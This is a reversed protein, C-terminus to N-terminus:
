HEKPHTLSVRAWQAEHGDITLDISGTDEVRLQAGDPHPVFRIWDLGHHALTREAPHLLPFSRRNVDSFWVASCGQAQHYDIRDVHARRVDRWRSLLRPDNRPYHVDLFALEAGSAHTAVTDTITRAPSLGVRGIKLGAAAKVVEDHEIKWRDGFAIPERTDWGAWTFGNLVRRLGHHENPTDAEDIEQFGIVTGRGAEDDIARVNRLFEATNVHRGLNATVLLVM